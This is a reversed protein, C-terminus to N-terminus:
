FKVTVFCRVGVVLKAIKERANTRTKRSIKFISRDVRCVNRQKACRRSAVRRSVGDGHGPGRHQISDGRMTPFNFVSVKIFDQRIGRNEPKAFRLIVTRDISPPQPTERTPFFFLFLSFPFLFYSLFFLLSPPSFNRNSSGSQGM